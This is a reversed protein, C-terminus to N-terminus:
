FESIEAISLGDSTWTATLLPVRKLKWFLFVTPHKQQEELAPILYM